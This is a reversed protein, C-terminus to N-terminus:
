DCDNRKFIDLVKRGQTKENQSNESDTPHTENEMERLIKQIDSLSRAQRKGHKSMTPTRKKLGENM